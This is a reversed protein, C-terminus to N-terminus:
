WSLLFLSSGNKKLLIKYFAISLISVSVIALIMSIILNLQGHQGFINSYFIYTFYAGLMFLTGHALNLIGGVSFVLVFGVSLLSYLAGRTISIILIEM